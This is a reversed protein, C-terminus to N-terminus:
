ETVLIRRLVYEGKETEVLLFYPGAEVGDVLFRLNVSGQEHRRVPTLSQLHRGTMDYLSASLSRRETLVLEVRVEGGKPVPNPAVLPSTIAGVGGRCVALFTREGAVRRCLSDELDRAAMTEADIAARYREPLRALLDRTPLYWYVVVGRAPDDDIHVRVAVLSSLLNHARSGHLADDISWIERAGEEATMLEEILAAVFETRESTPPLPPNSAMAMMSTLYGGSVDIGLATYLLPSPSTGDFRDAHLPVPELRNIEGNRDFTVAFQAVPDAEESVYGFRQLGTEFRDRSLRTKMLVAVGSDTQRIGLREAESLKLDVYRIGPVDKRDALPNEGRVRSFTYSTPGLHLTPSKLNPSTSMEAGDADMPKVYSTRSRSLRVGRAVAPGMMEWAVERYREPLAELFEPTPAYWLILASKHGDVLVPAQVAIMSEVASTDSLMGISRDSVQRQTWELLGNNSWAEDWGADRLSQPLSQRFFRTEEGRVFTFGKFAFAGAPGIEGRARSSDRRYVERENKMTPRDNGDTAFLLDEGKYWSDRGTDVGNRAAVDLESRGLWEKRVQSVLTLRVNYGDIELGFIEELEEATLGQLLLGPMVPSARDRSRLPMSEAYRAIPLNIVSGDSQLDVVKSTAGIKELRTVGPKEDVGEGEDPNSEGEPPADVPKSQEVSDPLVPETAEVIMVPERNEISEQHQGEIFFFTLLAVALLSGMVVISRGFGAHSTTEEPMAPSEGADVRDLREVLEERTLLPPAHPSRRAEAILDDVKTRDGSSIRM